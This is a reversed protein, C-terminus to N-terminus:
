RQMLFLHSIGIYGAVGCSYTVGFVIRSFAGYHIAGQLWLAIAYFVLGVIALARPAWLVRYNIVNLM